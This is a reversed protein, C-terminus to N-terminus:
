WRPRNRNIRWLIVLAAIGAFVTLLVPWVEILQNAGYHILVCGILFTIAATLFTEILNL